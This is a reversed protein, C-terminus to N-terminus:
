SKSSARGPFIPPFYAFLDCMGGLPNFFLIVCPWKRSDCSYFSYLVRHKLRNDYCLFSKTSHKKKTCSKTSTQGM